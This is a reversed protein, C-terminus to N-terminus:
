YFKVEPLIKKAEKTMDPSIDVGVIDKFGLKKLGYIERGTGCGVVLISSSKPVHREIIKEEEFNLGKKTKEIYNKLRDKDKYREIVFSKNARKM